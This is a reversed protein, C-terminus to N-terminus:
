SECLRSVEFPSADSIFLGEIIDFCSEGELMSRETQWRQRFPTGDTMNKILGAINIHLNLSKYNQTLGPIQKVFDHIQTISQDRKRRFSNYHERIEM